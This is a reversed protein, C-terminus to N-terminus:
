CVDRLEQIAGPCAYRYHCSTHQHISVYASTHQQRISSAYASTHQRISVYASTHQQRINVEIAGAEDGGLNKKKKFKLELKKKNLIHTAYRKCSSVDVVALQVDTYAVHQHM